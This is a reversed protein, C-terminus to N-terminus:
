AGATVRLLSPYCTAVTLAEADHAFLSFTSTSFSIVSGGSTAVSSITLVEAGTSTASPGVIVSVGAALATTAISASLTFNNTGATYLTASKLTFGTTGPIPFGCSYVTSNVNQLEVPKCGPPLLLGTQPTVAPGGVYVPQSGENFLRLTSSAASPNPTFVWTPLPGVNVHQDVGAGLFPM